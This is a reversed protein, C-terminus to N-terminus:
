VSSGRGDEDCIGHEVEKEYYWAPLGIKGYRGHRAPKWDDTDLRKRLDALALRNETRGREIADEHLPVVSVRYPFESQAFVLWFDKIPEGYYASAADLYWAAQRHYQLRLIHKEIEWENFPDVHTSKLDTVLGGKAGASVKDLRARLPLVSVPDSWFLSLEVDGSAALIQSAVPEQNLAEQMGVLDAAERPTVWECGPYDAWELCLAKGCRITDAKWQRYAKGMRYGDRNLVEAPIVNLSEDELILRHLITGLEMARTPPQRLAPPKVVHQNYFREPEKPLLKVQSQSYELRAHYEAAPMDRVAAVDTHPKAGADMLEEVEAKTGNAVAARAWAVTPGEMTTETM